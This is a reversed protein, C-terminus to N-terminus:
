QTSFFGDQEQTWGKSGVFMETGKALQAIRSIRRKRQETDHIRIITRRGSDSGAKTAVLFGFVDFTSGMIAGPSGKITVNGGVRLESQLVSGEVTLNGLVGARTMQIYSSELNGQIKIIGNMNTHIGSRAAANGFVVINPCSWHGRVEFDGQVEWQVNADFDADVCVSCPFVFKQFYPTGLESVSYTSSFYLRHGKLVIQGSESSVFLEQDLRRVCEPLELDIHSPTIKNRPEVPRGYVDRGVEPPQPPTIRLFPIGARALDPPDGDQFLWELRSPQADLPAIGRVLTYDEKFGSPYKRLTKRFEAFAADTMLERLGEARLCTNMDDVKWQMVEPAVLTGKPIFAESADIPSKVKFYSKGPQYPV